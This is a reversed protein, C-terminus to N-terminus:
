IGPSGALINPVHWLNIHVGANPSMLNTKGGDSNSIWGELLQITRAPNKGVSVVMCKSTDNAFVSVCFSVMCFSTITLIIVANRM